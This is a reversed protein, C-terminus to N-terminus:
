PHHRQRGPDPLAHQHGHLRRPGGPLGPRHVRRDGPRLGDRADRASRLVPQAPDHLPDGALRQRNGFAIPDQRGEVQLHRLGRPARRADDPVAVGNDAFLKKNYVMYKADLTIPVGYLKGDYTYADLAAPRSATRGTARRRRRHPGQRPEGRVFKKTFDGAWSFYIDPLTNSAALVRLKDKVGQDSEAQVDIKVKPHAAMYADAVAQFYPRTARTPTSTCGPSRRGRAGGGPTASAAPAERPAQSAAGAIGASAVRHRRWRVSRRRDGGNCCPRTAPSGAMGDFPSHGRAGGRRGDPSRARGPPARETRPPHRCGSRPMSRPSRAETGSRGMTAVPRQRPM